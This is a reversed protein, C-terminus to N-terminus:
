DILDKIYDGGKGVTVDGGTSLTRIPKITNEAMGAKAEMSAEAQKKKARKKAMYGLGIIGPAIGAAMGALVGGVAKVPKMEGGKNKNAASGSSDTTTDMKLGRPLDDPNNEYADQLKKKGKNKIQEESKPLKKLDGSKLDQLNKISNKIKKNLEEKSLEGAM